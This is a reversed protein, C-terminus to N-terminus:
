ILKALLNRICASTIFIFHLKYEFYISNRTAFICTTATTTTTTPKVRWMPTANADLSNCGGRPCCIGSHLRTCLDKEFQARVCVFNSMKDVRLLLYFEIRIQRVISYIHSVPEACGACVCHTCHWLCLTMSFITQVCIFTQERSTIGVCIETQMENWQIEFELETVGDDGFLVSVFNM